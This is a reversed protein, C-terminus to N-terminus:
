NTTESKKNLLYLDIVTFIVIWIVMMAMGSYLVRSVAGFSSDLDNIGMIRLVNSTIFNFPIMFLWVIIVAVIAKVFSQSRFPLFDNVWNILLHLATIGTWVVIIGLIFAVVIEAKFYYQQVSNFSRVMFRDYDNPFIAVSAVYVVFEGIMLYVLGFFSTLMNSSYLTADSIPILRYKDNVYVLENARAMTFIGVAMAIFVGGTFSTIGPNTRFSNWIQTVLIILIHIGLIWSIMKFKNKFLGKSVRGLSSM